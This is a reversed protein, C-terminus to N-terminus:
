DDYKEFLDIHQKTALIHDIVPLNRVQKEVEYETDKRVMRIIDDVIQEDSYMSELTKEKEIEINSKSIEVFLNTYEIALDSPQFKIEFDAVDSYNSRM